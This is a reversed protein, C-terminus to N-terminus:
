DSVKRLVNQQHHIAEEPSYGRLYSGEETKPCFARITSTRTGNPYAYVGNLKVEVYDAEVEVPPWRNFMVIKHPKTLLVTKDETKPLYYATVILGRHPKRTAHAEILQYKM